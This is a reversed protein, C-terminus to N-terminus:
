ADSEGARYAPSMPQWDTLYYFIGGASGIENWVEDHYFAIGYHRKGGTVGYNWGRVKLWTGDKPATDIPKWANMVADGHRGCYPAPAQTRGRAKELGEVVDVPLGQGRDSKQM